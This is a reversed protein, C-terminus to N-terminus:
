GGGDSADRVGGADPPSSCTGTPPIPHAIPPLSRLYAVIALTSARDLGADAFNPMPACLTAGDKDVGDLIAHAIQDDTWCGLGTSPDPTLNSPYAVGGNPQGLGSASGRLDGGHCSQCHREGVLALGAQISADDPASGRLAACEDSSAGDVTPTADNGADSAAAVDADPKSACAVARAMWALFAIAVGQRGAKSRM